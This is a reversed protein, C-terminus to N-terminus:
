KPPGQNTWYVCLEDIVVQARHIHWEDLGNGKAKCGTCIWSGHVLSSTHSLHAEKVAQIAGVDIPALPDLEDLKFSAGESATFRVFVDYGHTVATNPDIIGTRGRHVSPAANPDGWMTADVKVRVRQVETM